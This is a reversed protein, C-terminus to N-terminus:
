IVCFSTFFFHSRVHVACERKKHFGGGGLFCNIGVRNIIVPSSLMKFHFPISISYIHIDGVKEENQEYFSGLPGVAVTVGNKCNM